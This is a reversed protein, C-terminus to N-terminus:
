ASVGKAAFTSTPEKRRQRVIWRVIAPAAVFLVILSQIVQVVEPATGASTTQMAGGGVALIGFLFGALVSGLPTGRGLLAVTIADFGVSGVLSANNSAQDGNIMMTAALGSLGGAIVMTLIFVKATSMGATRSADPNAGVSRLEFGLTSRTLLWWVVAAAVLSLLVGMHVGLVEPFAAADPVPPSQPLGLDDDPRQFSKLEGLAYALVGFSAIQNLMITSIVEHTGTAAKLLGAIGGWLAGALVGALVSTLLLIPGPLDWTFGVYSAALTGLIIQGQAGINFLGARFALSVGLGACILPASRNLTNALGEGSGLSRDLLAGYSTTVVDFSRSFFDWPYSFFYGMSDIVSENSLAMLVAGILLALVIAAATTLVGELAKRDLRLGPRKTM